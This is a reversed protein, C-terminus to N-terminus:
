NLCVELQKNRKECQRMVPQIVINTFYIPIEFKPVAQQSLDDGKRRKHFSCGHFQHETVFNYLVQFFVFGFYDFARECETSSM